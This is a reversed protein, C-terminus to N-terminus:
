GAYTFFDPMGKYVPFAESTRMYGVSKGLNAVMPVETRFTNSYEQPLPAVAVIHGHAEGLRYSPLAAVALGNSLAWISADASDVKDWKKSKNTVITEYIDDALMGTFEDCGFEKAIFQIAENCHTVGQYPKFDPNALAQDLVDKIEKRM